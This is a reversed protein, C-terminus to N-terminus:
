RRPQTEFFRMRLREFEEPTSPRGLIAGEFQGYAEQLPAWAAAWPIWVELKEPPVARELYVSFWLMDEKAGRLAKKRARLLVPLAIPDGRRFQREMEETMFCGAVYLDMTFFVKGASWQAVEGEWRSPLGPVLGERAIRDLRDATTVHYLYDGASRFKAPDGKASLRHTRRTRPM